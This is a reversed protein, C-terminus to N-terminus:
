TELCPIITRFPRNRPAQEATYKEVGIYGADGSALAEEEHLLQEAQSLDSINAATGVVSGGAGSVTDVGIHAKMGFFWQNGKKTQHM